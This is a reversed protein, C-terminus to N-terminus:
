QDVEGMEAVIARREYFVHLDVYADRSASSAGKKPLMGASSAAGSTALM